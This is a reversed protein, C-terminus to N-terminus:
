VRCLLIYMCSACLFILLIRGNYFSMVGDETVAGLEWWVPAPSEFEHGGSGSNSVRVTVLQSALWISTQTEEHM